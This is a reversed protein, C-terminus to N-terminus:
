MENKRQLRQIMVNRCPGLTLLWPRSGRAGKAAGYCLVRFWADDLPPLEEDKHYVVKLSGGSHAPGNNSDSNKSFERDEVIRTSGSGRM